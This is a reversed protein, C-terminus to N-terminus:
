AAAPSTVVFEVKYMDRPDVLWEVGTLIAIRECDDHGQYKIQDGRELFVRSHCLATYRRETPSVRNFTGGHLAHGWM